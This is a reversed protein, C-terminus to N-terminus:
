DGPAKTEVSSRPLDYVRVRTKGDGEFQAGDAYLVLRDAHYEPPVAMQWLQGKAILGEVLLSRGGGDLPMAYIQSGPAYSKTRVSEANPEIAEAIAWAGAIGGDNGKFSMATLSGETSRVFISTNSADGPALEAWVFRGAHYAGSHAVMGRGPPDFWRLLSGSTGDYVEVRSAPEDGPRARDRTVILDGESVVMFSIPSDLKVLTRSTDSSALDLVRIESRGIRADGDTASRKTCAIYLKGGWFGFHPRSRSALVAADVLRPQGVSLTRPDYPAAYLKWVVTEPDLDLDGECIEEWGVWGEGLGYGLIMLDPGIARDRVLKTMGTKLDLLYLENRDSTAGRLRRVALAVDGAHSRVEWSGPLVFEKARWDPPPADPPVRTPRPGTGSDSRGRAPRADPLPRACGLAGAVLVLAVVFWVRSRM